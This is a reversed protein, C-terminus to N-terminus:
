THSANSNTAVLVGVVPLGRKIRADKYAEWRASMPVKDTRWKDTPDSGGKPGEM